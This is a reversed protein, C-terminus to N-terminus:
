LLAGLDENIHSYEDGSMFAVDAGHQHGKEKFATM